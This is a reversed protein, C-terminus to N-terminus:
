LGLVKRDRATLPVKQENWQVPEVDPRRLRSRECKEYPSREFRVAPAGEELHIWSMKFLNPLEEGFSRLIAITEADTSVYAVVDQSDKVDAFAKWAEFAAFVTARADLLAAFRLELENGRIEAVREESPADFTDAHVTALRSEAPIREYTEEATYSLIPAILKNIKLLAYHSAYQGSRRSNWDKGDCYMRDKIADLYFRSLEKACFNHVTNIVFGFDYRRYADVCDSVLLDVQEILWRDIDLLETPPAAPNFDYLNGLLFRMTNRV